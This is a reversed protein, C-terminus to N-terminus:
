TRAYHRVIAIENVFDSDVKEIVIAAETFLEVVQKPDQLDDACLASAVAYAKDSDFNEGAIRFHGAAWLTLKIKHKTTPEPTNQQTKTARGLAGNGQHTPRAKRGHTRAGVKAQRRYL